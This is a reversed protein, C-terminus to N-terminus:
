LGFDVCVDRAQTIVINSDYVQYIVVQTNKTRATSFRLNLDLNGGQLTDAAGSPHGTKTMDFAYLRYGDHWESLSIQPIHDWRSQIALMSELYPRCNAAAAGDENDLEYAHFPIRVNDHLLDLEQLKMPKFDYPTTAMDGAFTGQEVLGVILLKPMPGVAINKIQHDLAEKPVFYSNVMVREIPYRSGYIGMQRETADLLRASPTLFKCYLKVKTLTLMYEPASAGSMLIFNDPQRTLLLRVEVNPVLYRDQNFLDMHLKGWTRVENDSPKVYVQNRVVAAWNNGNTTHAVTTPFKNQEINRKSGSLGARDKFWGGATYEGVQQDKTAHVLTDLYARYAYNPQPDSVQTGNLFLDINKWISGNPYNILTLEETKKNDTTNELKAGENDTLKFTTEIFLNNLDLFQHPRKDIVFEFPSFQNHQGIAQRPLIEEIENM